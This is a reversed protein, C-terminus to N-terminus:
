GPTQHLIEGDKRNWRPHCPSGFSATSNPDFASLFARLCTKWRKLLSQPTLFM